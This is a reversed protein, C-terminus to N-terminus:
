EYYEPFLRCHKSCKKFREELEDWTPFTSEEVYVLWDLENVMDMLMRRKNEFVERGYFFYESVAASIVSMAQVEAPVSKSRTWVMLMKEISTEALPAVHCGLDSDYRWKRKLFDANAINIYPVSEAEKDAMTYEINISKYADVIATHNFWPADKSVGMINDDGYTVLSVHEKFTSLDHEPNLLYYVYRNRLSNVISNLIVTLPNGSPNIGHFMVLDGNYDVLAFATDMALVAIVNLDEQSFNGSQVSFHYIVQFAAVVEPPVMSTDYGVFDGAVVRDEGYKTIFQFLEQWELSQAITGPAAEFAIRENQVLRIFGLCYKRAVIIYDMPAGTFVRTKKMKAKKLSVPEDKLHACFNPHTQELKEARAIIEVVRKMIEDDVEVPDLMGHQPLCATMFHKKSKKWPNGASTNRNMKDVYAVQAGNITTFDDLVMCMSVNEPDLLANEVDQIYHKVCLDLIDTDIDAKKAVMKSAAINWPEWSKMEPKFYKIKYGKKSLFHSMPTNEVRSKGKGRFGTFSGHITAVGEPIYRFVSKKALPGVARPASDSSLFDKAGSQVQCFINGQKLKTIIDSDLALAFSTSAIHNTAVHIGAIAYGYESTVLLPMGCDGFQTQEKPNGVFTDFKGKIEINFPHDHLFRVNRVTNSSFLGNENKIYAGNFVGTCRKMFYMSIDRRPPLHRLYLVALDREPYRKVDCDNLKFTQNSNVGDKGNMVIVQMKTSKFEPVNHNNTIYVQGGLCLAQGPIYMNTDPLDIKFGIVNRFIRKQFDAFSASKSSLSERTLDLDTLEMENKYWVNERGNCEPEPTNGTNTSIGGETHRPEEEKKSFYLMGVVSALITAVLVFVRPHKFSQMVKQGIRGFKARSCNVVLQYRELTTCLGALYKIYTYILVLENWVFPLTTILAGFMWSLINNDRMSIMPHSQLEQACMSEPLNCCSCFRTEETQKMSYKIKKQEDEFSIVTDRLWLFFTRQDVDKLIVEMDALQRLETKTRMPKCVVKRVTFTWLDPFGSPEVLRADLIGRDSLFEPKVKPEVIYPFRRQVASPVAFFSYANFDMVNTTAIVNKVRLPTRGKMELEAQNPCFAANNMVQIIENVSKPDKLDPNESAVDDLILTHVSSVFGSWYDDVPNRTYFYEDKVPLNRVRCLFTSIMKTLSTKGMGPPSFIAIGFPADRNKRGEKKTTLDAHMMRMTALKTRVVEREFKSLTLSHKNMSNLKEIVDDLDSRFECETFNNAEPNSLLKEKYQLDACKDFVKQYEKDSHFMTEPDGTQYVQFGREMLFLITDIATMFFDTRSSFKKKKSAQEVKTFGFTDMTIGIKELMSFSLVFMMCRHLKETMASEKIGKAKEFAQRLSRVGEEFSQTNDPSRLMQEVYPLYQETVIELLMGHHRMKAFSMFAFAMQDIRQQNERLPATAIMVFFTCDEILKGVYRIMGIQDEASFYKLFRCFIKNSEGSQRYIVRYQFTYGNIEHIKLLKETCVDCLCNYEMCHPKEIDEAFQWVYPTFLCYLFWVCARIPYSYKRPAVEIEPEEGSSCVEDECQPLLYEPEFHGFNEIDDDLRNIADKEEQTLPTRVPGSQVELPLEEFEGFEYDTHDYLSNRDFSEIERLLADWQPENTFCRDISQAFNHLSMLEHELKYKYLNNVVWTPYKHECILHASLEAVEIDSLGVFLHQAIGVKHFRRFHRDSPAMLIKEIEDISTDICAPDTSRRAESLSTERKLNM